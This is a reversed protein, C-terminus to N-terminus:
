LLSIFLVNSNPNYTFCTLLLFLVCSSLSLLSMYQGHTLFCGNIFPHKSSVSISFCLSLSPPLIRICVCRQM